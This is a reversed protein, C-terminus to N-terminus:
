TATNWVKYSYSISLISTIHFQDPLTNFDTMVSLIDKRTRQDDIKQFVSSLWDTDIKANSRNSSSQLLKSTMMWNTSQSPDNSSIEPAHISTECMLVSSPKM